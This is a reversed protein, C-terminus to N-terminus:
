RNKRVKSSNNKKKHPINKETIITIAGSNELFARSVDDIHLLGANHIADMLEDQTILHKHMAKWQIKGDKVLLTPTGKLFHEVSPFLFVLYATAMNLFMIAIVTGIGHLFDINGMVIGALISGLLVYLFFNFGTRLGMFRKNIRILIIGVIYVVFARVLMQHIHLIDIDEGVLIDIINTISAMRNAGVNLQINLM